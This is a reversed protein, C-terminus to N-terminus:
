EYISGGRLGFPDFPEEEYVAKHGSTTESSLPPPSDSFLDVVPSSGANAGGKRPIVMTRNNNNPDSRCMENWIQLHESGEVYFRHDITKDLGELLLGEHANEPHLEEIWQEYSFANNRNEALFSELHDKIADLMATKAELRIKRRQQEQENERNIAELQEVLQEEPGTAIGLSSRARLFSAGLARIRKQEALRHLASSSLDSVAASLLDSRTITSVAAAAAEKERELARWEEEAVDLKAQMAVAVRLDDDDLSALFAPDNMLLQALAEDSIHDLGRNSPAMSNRLAQQLEREEKERAIKQASVLKRRRVEATCTTGSGGGASLPASIVPPLIVMTPGISTSSATITGDVSTTCTGDSQQMNDCNDGAASASEEGGRLLLIAEVAEQVNNNHRELIRRLEERSPKNDEFILQLHDL